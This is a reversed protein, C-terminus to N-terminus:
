VYRLVVRDRTHTNGHIEIGELTYRVPAGPGVSQGPAARAMPDPTPPAVAEAEGPTPAPTPAPEAADRASEPEAQARATAPPIVLLLAVVPAGLLRQIHSAMPRM